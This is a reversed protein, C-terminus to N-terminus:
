LRNQISNSLEKSFEQFSRTGTARWEIRGNKFIIFTPISQVHYQTAIFPYRDVNVKIIRIDDKYKEKVQKLVPDMSKCPSCWDTYFDVLVPKESNIISQFRNNGMGKRREVKKFLGM